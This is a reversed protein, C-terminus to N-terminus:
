GLRKQLLLRNNRSNENAATVQSAIFELLSNTEDSAGQPTSLTEVKKELAEVKENLRNLWEATQDPMRSIQSSSIRSLKM